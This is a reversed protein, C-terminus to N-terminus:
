LNKYSFFQGLFIIRCKTCGNKSIYSKFIEISIHLRLCFEEVKKIETITKKLFLPWILTLCDKPQSRKWPWLITAWDFIFKRKLNMMNCHWYDIVSFARRSITIIQNSKWPRIKWWRSSKGDKSKKRNQGLNFIFASEFQQFNKTRFNIELCATFHGFFSKRVNFHSKEITWTKV